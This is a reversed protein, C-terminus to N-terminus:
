ISEYSSAGSGGGGGGGGCLGRCKRVFFSGGDKVLGPLSWWFGDNPCSEKMGTTGLKVRKYACGAVVYVFSAVLLAICFITGGSIKNSSPNDSPPPPSSSPCGAGSPITTTMTCTPSETVTYTSPPAAGPNCAFNIVAKRNGGSPCSTGPQGLVTLQVGANPDSPNIPAWVPQGDAADAYAIGAVAASTTDMQCMM